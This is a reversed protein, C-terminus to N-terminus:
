TSRFVEDQPTISSHTMVAFHRFAVVSAAVGKLTAKTMTNNNGCWNM